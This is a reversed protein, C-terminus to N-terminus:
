AYNRHRAYAENSQLIKVLRPDRNLDWQPVTAKRTNVASAAANNQQTFLAATSTLTNGLISLKNGFSTSSKVTKSATNTFGSSATKSINNRAKKDLGSVVVGNISGGANTVANLFNTKGTKVADQVATSNASSLNGARLEKYLGKADLKGDNMQEQLNASISKKMEKKTMGGLEEPSMGEVADKAATKAALKNMADQGQKNIQAFESKISKTSNFAAAGSQIATAASQMAGTLNGEAAFAATKTINAATVGYQGITEAITGAKEMIMGVPRMWATWPTTAALVMIQGSMKLSQGGMEVIQSIEEVKTAFEIVKNTKTEQAQLNKINTKNTKVYQNNTQQIKALNRSQSRQLSQIVKGNAQMIRVKSGIFTQLEIIKNQDDNNGSGSQSEGFSFSNRALLTDLERQANEVEKQIELTEKNLKDLKTNDRKLESQQKQLTKTFNKDNEIIDKNIKQSSASFNAVIDADGEVNRTMANLKEAQAQISSAAAKGEVANAPMENDKNNDQNVPTSDLKKNLEALSKTTNLETITYQNNLQPANFISGTMQMYDPKKAQTKQANKAMGSKVAAIAQSKASNYVNLVGM